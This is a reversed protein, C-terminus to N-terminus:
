QKRKYKKIDILAKHLAKKTLYVPPASYNLRNLGDNKNNDKESLAVILQDYIISKTYIDYIRIITRARSSSLNTTALQLNDTEYDKSTSIQILYDYEKSLAIVELDEDSIEFKIDQPIIVGKNRADLVEDIAGEGVSKLGNVFSDYTSAAYPSYINNLLYKKDKFDLGKPTSYSQVYRINACSSIVLVMILLSLTSCIFKKM